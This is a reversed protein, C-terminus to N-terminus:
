QRDIKDRKYKGYQNPIVDPDTDDTEPPDGTIQPSCGRGADVLPTSLGNDRTQHNSPDLQCDLPTSSIHSNKASKLKKSSNRFLASNCLHALIEFLNKDYKIMLIEGTLM